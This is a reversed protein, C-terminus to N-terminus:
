REGNCIQSLLIESYVANIDGVVHFQIPMDALKARNRGTSSRLYSSFSPLVEKVKHFHCACKGELFDKYRAMTMNFTDIADFGLSETVAILDRNRIELRRQEELTLHHLGDVPLHFGAGLSKVIVRIKSLGNKQLISSIRNLHETSLWHVGGVILVTSRDNSLSSRNILRLLSEDFLARGNIPRRWFQPHYAFSVSTRNDNVNGYSKTGHTKDREALSGNTQEILYHIMGRLTSDGISLIKKDALCDRLRQRSLTRHSCTVPQWVAESWYCTEMRRCEGCPLLWQGAATGTKCQPLGDSLYKLNQWAHLQGHMQLGCPENVLYPLGCDQRLLCVQHSAKADFKAVLEGPPQRYINLTYTNLIWPESHLPDVVHLQVRNLGVGITYNTVGSPGYRDTLRVEAQCDVAFGKVQVFIVDYAVTVFYDTVTENYTPSLSLTPRTYFAAMNGGRTSPDTKCETGGPTGKSEGILAEPKVSVSSCPGFNECKSKFPTKGAQARDENQKQTQSTNDTSDTVVAEGSSSVSSPIPLSELTMNARISTSTSNKWSTREEVGELVVKWQDILGVSGRLDKPRRDENPTSTPPPRYFRPDSSHRFSILLSGASIVFGIYLIKKLSHRTSAPFTMIRGTGIWTIVDSALLGRDEEARVHSAVVGIGIERDRESM